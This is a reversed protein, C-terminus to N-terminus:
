CVDWVLYSGGVQEVVRVPRSIDHGSADMGFDLSGHEALQQKSAM